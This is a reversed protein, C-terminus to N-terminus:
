RQWYRRRRERHSTLDVDRSNGLTITIAGREGTTVLEAGAARWRAQIEPRPFGWQNAFAASAVAHSADVADVFAPSSSTASGHHPLIVVTSRLDTSRSVLAREGEVEVDGPILLSGARTAVKLVCSSDNGLPFFEVPPHLFQFHVEDWRWEDGRRCASAGSMGVDPGAFIQASPFAATVAAAGGSHDTDAHSIIITDLESRGLATLAPLVIQEGSDFGSRYRPGADFLLVHHRTEVIVALGHGVDLVTAVAVGTEPGGQRGFMLPLVALGSLFRGPMPHVPLAFMVGIVALILLWSDAPPIDIASWHWSSVTELVSWVLQVLRGPVQILLPGLSDSFLALVGILTLPVLALSFVPIMLFNVFPSVVSLEGFYLVVIPALGLCIGWQVSVSDRLKDRRRHRREVFASRGQGLQWLLGVAIFSLWFSPSSIAFPDWLLVCLAATSLGVAMSVSRRTLVAFSAVILMILARQTPVGFGAAAAYAASCLLSVLSAGLLDFHALAGPLRLWIRRLLFFSFAAVLGIHLGSIAMLHSTGTRRLVEWHRDDFGFREGLALATLLPPADVGPTMTM